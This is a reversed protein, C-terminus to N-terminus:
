LNPPSFHLLLRTVMGTGLFRWWLGTDFGPCCCSLGKDPDKFICLAGPSWSGEFQVKLQNSEHFLVGVVLHPKVTEKIASRETRSAAPVGVNFPRWAEM